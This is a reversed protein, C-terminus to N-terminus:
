KQNGQQKEREHKQVADVLWGFMKQHADPPLTSEQDNNSFM